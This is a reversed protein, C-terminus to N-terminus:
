TNKGIYSHCSKGFRSEEIDFRSTHIFSNMNLLGELMRKTEFQQTCGLQSLVMMIQNRARYPIYYKQLWVQYLVVNVLGVLKGGEEM